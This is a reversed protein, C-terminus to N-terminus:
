RRPLLSSTRRSSPSPRTATLRFAGDREDKRYIAWFSLGTGEAIVDLACRVLEDERDLRELTEGVRYITLQARLNRIREMEAFRRRFAILGLLATVAVVATGFFIRAHHRVEAPVGLAEGPTLQYATYGLVAMLFAVGFAYRRALSSRLQDRSEAASPLSAPISKKQKTPRALYGEM